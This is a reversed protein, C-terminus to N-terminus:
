GSGWVVEGSGEGLSALGLEMDWLAMGRGLVEAVARGGNRVVLPLEVVEWLVTTGGTQPLRVTAFDKGMRM